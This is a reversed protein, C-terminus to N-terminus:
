FTLSLSRRPAAHRTPTPPRTLRRMVDPTAVTHISAPLAPFTRLLLPLLDAGKKGLASCRQSTHLPQPTADRVGQAQHREGGGHNAWRGRRGSRAGGRRGWAGEGGVEVGQARLASQFRTRAGRQTLVITPALTVDWLNADQPSSFFPPSLTRSLPNTLLSQHLRPLAPRRSSLPRAPVFAAAAATAPPPLHAERQEARGVGEGGLAGLVRERGQGGEKM